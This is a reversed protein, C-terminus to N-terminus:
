SSVDTHGLQPSCEVITRMDEVAMRLHLAHPSDMSWATYGHRPSAPHLIAMYTTPIAMAYPTPPHLTQGQTSRIAIAYPTPPHLTREQASRIAM